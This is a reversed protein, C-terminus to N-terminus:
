CAYLLATCLLAPFSCTSVTLLLFWVPQWSSAPSPALRWPFPLVLELLSVRSHLPVATQPVNLPFATSHGPNKWRCPKKSIIDPIFLQLPILVSVLLFSQLLMPPFFHPSIPLVKRLVNLFLVLLFPALSVKLLLLLSITLLCSQREETLSPSGRGELGSNQRRGHARPATSGALGRLLTNWQCWHKHPLVTVCLMHQRHCAHLATGKWVHEWPRGIPTSLLLPRDKFDAGTGIVSSIKM